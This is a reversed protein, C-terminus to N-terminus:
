KKPPSTLLAPVKEVAASPPAIGLAWALMPAVVLASVREARKGLAPVGAGYAVVPVHTDYPYPSGHSSGTPYRSLISYAKPVVIVDGCRDPRFAPKVLDLAARVDKEAGPSTPPLTGAEVNRRTFATAAYPRNGAWQAVFEAVVQKDLGRAKILRDNLYVWPLLYDANDVPDIWEGPSGGESKGFAEDLAANLPERFDKEFLARLGDDARYVSTRGHYEPTPCVGHDATLVLTYREKGYRGDLYALLDRVILDSRLTVDLAEHSDPGWIHGILDNSSFSVCLLDTADAGLNEGEIAKKAFELLLENGAPSLELVAYDEAKQGPAKRNRLEHPFVKGQGGTGFGEGPGADPGALRDYFAEDPRLRTWPKGIYKDAPTTANFADVWPHPKPRYYTTTHFLGDRVDFCYAATPEKGGMLVATRDKISLSVVKSKGGTAAKLADGVTPALLNEPSFGAASGRSAKASTDPLPPVFAAVRGTPEACYVRKGQGRDYWENEVIGHVSPMAGTSISAHSPGTSTCSYPLHADAFWVGDRKLREFGDPGFGAAWRDLYDGRFQDFVVLVVLKGKGAAAAAAPKGPEGKGKGKATRGGEDPQLSKVLLFGGAAGAAMLVIVLAVRAAKPM